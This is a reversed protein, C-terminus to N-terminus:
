AALRRTDLAPIGELEVGSVDCQGQGNEIRLSVWRGRLRVPFPEITQQKREVNVGAPDFFFGATADVSYDERLPADFDNNVNTLVFDKKAHLYYKQRDKTIPKERLVREEMVGDAVATVTISPRWTSMGVRARTFRLMPTDAPSLRTSYASAQLSPAAYGRTEMADAIEHEQIEGDNNIWDTKGEYLVYVASNKKDIAFLRREGQFIMVMLDDIQFPAPFTDYGELKETAGNYVILCNNYTSGDIPVAFYNYEGLSEAVAGEAAKWNIRAILPQIPDTIPLPVTQLRSEFVQAIRYIGGPESLFLVDGGLTTVAKRGALGLHANLVQVQALVPDGTWNLLTDSSRKKFVIVIGQSYGFVRVIPDSTGSNVYFDQLIPDYSTYDGVDSALLDNTEKILLLRDSVYEATVAPPILNTSIDEPDSKTIPVFGESSHGDWVLQILDPGRFLFVKNRAQVFEVPTRIATDLPLPITRPAWGDQLMYIQSQGALLIVEEGQPNSFVGLGYIKVVGLGNAWGPLMTGGRTNASRTRLRKNVSLRLTGPPLSAPDDKMNVTDFFEDGVVIPREDRQGYSRM